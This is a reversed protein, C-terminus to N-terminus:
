EKVEADIVSEDVPASAQQQQQAIGQAQAETHVAQILQAVEAYPRSGLYTLVANILDLSINM